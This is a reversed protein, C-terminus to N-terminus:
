FKNADSVEVIECQMNYSGVPLELTKRDLAFTDRGLKIYLKQSSMSSTLQGCETSSTGETLCFNGTGQEKNIDLTFLAEDDYKDKGKCSFSLIDSANAWIPLIAIALITLFKM